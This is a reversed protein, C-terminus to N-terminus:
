RYARGRGAGTSAPTVAFRAPVGAIQQWGLWIAVVAGLSAGASIGLPGLWRLRARISSSTLRAQMETSVSRLLM